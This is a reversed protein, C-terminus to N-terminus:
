CVRLTVNVDPKYRRQPKEVVIEVVMQQSQAANKRPM